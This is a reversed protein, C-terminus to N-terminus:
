QAAAGRPSKGGRREKAGVYLLFAHADREFVIYNGHPSTM